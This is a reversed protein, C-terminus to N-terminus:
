SKGPLWSTAEKKILVYMLITQTLIFLLYIVGMSVIFGWSFFGGFTFFFQSALFIGIGLSAIGTAINVTAHRMTVTRALVDSKGTLFAISAFEKAHTSTERAYQMWVSTMAYVFGLTTFLTLWTAQQRYIQAIARGSEGDVISLPIIATDFDIGQIQSLLDEDQESITYIWAWRSELSIKDVQTGYGPILTHQVYDHLTTSDVQGASIEAVGQGYAAVYVALAPDQSAITSAADDLCTAYDGSCNLSTKVIQFGDPPRPPPIQAGAIIGFLAVLIVGIAVFSGAFAGTRSGEYPHNIVWRFFVSTRLDISRRKVVLNTMVTCLVALTAHLGLIVLLVTFLVLPLVLGNPIKLWFVGMVTALVIGLGFLALGSGTGFSWRKGMQARTRSTSPWVLYAFAVGTVLVLYVVLLALIDLYIRPHLRYGTFPLRVYGSVLVAIVVAALGVGVLYPKYLYAISHRILQRRPAGISELVFREGSLLKGVSARTARLNLILPLAFVLFTVPLLYQSWQEYNVDGFLAGERANKAFGSSFYVGDEDKALDIFAKGNSPRYYVVVEGDLIVADDIVSQIPGFQSELIDSYQKAARSVAIHGPELWQTLGAPLEADDGLPELELVGVLRSNIFTNDVRYAFSANAETSVYVPSRSSAISCRSDLEAPIAVLAFICMVVFFATLGANFRQILHQYSM